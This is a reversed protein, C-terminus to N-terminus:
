EIPWAHKRVCLKSYALTRFYTVTADGHNGTNPIIMVAARYSTGQRLGFMDTRYEAYNGNGSTNRIVVSFNHERHARTNLSNNFIYDDEM